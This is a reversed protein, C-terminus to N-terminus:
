TPAWTSASLWRHLRRCSCPLMGACRVCDLPLELVGHVFFCHNLIFTKTM